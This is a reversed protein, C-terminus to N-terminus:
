IFFVIKFFCYFDNTLFRKSAIKKRYLNSNLCVNLYFPPVHCFQDRNIKNKHFKNIFNIINDNGQIEKPCFKLMTGFLFAFYVYRAM